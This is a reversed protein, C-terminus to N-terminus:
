PRLRQVRVCFWRKRQLGCFISPSNLPPVCPHLASTSCLICFRRASRLFYCAACLLPVSSTSCLDCSTSLLVRLRPLLGCVRFASCWLSPVSHLCLLAACSRLAPASRLLPASTPVPSLLRVPRLLLDFCQLLICPRFAPASCLLLARFSLAHVSLHLPGCPPLSSRIVPASCQLPWLAACQLPACSRRVPAFRLICFASASRPAIAPRLLPVAFGFAFHLFGFTSCLLVFAPAFRLICLRSGSRLVWVGYAARPDYLEARLSLALPVLLFHVHCAEQVARRRCCVASPTRCASLPTYCAPRLNSFTCRLHLVRCGFAATACVASPEASRLLRLHAHLRLMFPVSRSYRVCAACHLVWQTSRLVCYMPHLLLVVTCIMSTGVRFGCSAM